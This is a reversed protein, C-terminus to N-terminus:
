ETTTLYVRQICSFGTIQLYKGSPVLERAVPADDHRPLRSNQIESEAQHDDCNTEEKTKLLDSGAGNRLVTSGTEQLWDRFEM